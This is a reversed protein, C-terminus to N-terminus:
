SCEVGVISFVFGLVVFRNGHELGLDLQVVGVVLFLADHHQVLADVDTADVEGRRGLRGYERLSRRPWM